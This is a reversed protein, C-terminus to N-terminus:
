RCRRAFGRHLFLYSMYFLSCYFMFLVCFLVIFFAAFMNKKVICVSFPVSLCISSLLLLCTRTTKEIAKPDGIDFWTNTADDMQLFRGHRKRIAVVISKSINTQQQESSGTTSSNNNNFYLERNKRHVMERYVQNGRHRLGVSGSGSRSSLLGASSSSSFCLIDVEQPTTIGTLQQQQKQKQQSPM